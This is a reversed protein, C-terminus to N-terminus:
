INLEAQSKPRGYVRVRYVCTQSPHGHNTLFEFVIHSFAKTTEVKLKFVQLSKDGDREYQFRGLLHCAEAIPSETGYIRFDNPADDNGTLLESSTPHQIAVADIFAPESLKILVRGQGGNFRWCDGQEIRGKIIARPPHTM